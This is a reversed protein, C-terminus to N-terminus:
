GEAGHQLQRIADLYAQIVLKEDFEREVKARGAAGMAARQEPNMLGMREMVAALSPANRVECLLGNRGSDVLHRNGPVDTAILPRAMAAAELLSRPLGERYSPLVVATAQAIHPRVDRAEGLYEISADRRWGDLENRKISTRNGEDLPGLLQFRWGPYKVRLERAADVFERLGKDGLLRGVLLFVPPGEAPQEAPAFRDLDIGSGPLLRAQGPAIIGRGVFLDRDDPNQFFIIKSRRLALRYLLTVFKTLWGGRIFATGLGSINPLSYVGSMQAAISGYINPKVTFGLFVVPKLQRFLKRFGILTRADHLPDLGSRDIAITATEAGIKSAWETEADPVAIVPRYGQEVLASILGKRFNAINWFSNAGIVVAPRADEKRSQHPM